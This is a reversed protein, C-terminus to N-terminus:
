ISIPNIEHIYKVLMALPSDPPLTRCYNANGIVYLSNKARTVAVNILYPVTNNIWKTKHTPSNTSVVLSFIMIDRENGQFSHVTDAKIREQLHVPILNRIEKAQDSFPTTIGIKIFAHQEALSCALEVTKNIEVQNINKTSHHKGATHVWFVGKPEINYNDASTLIDLEQGMKPGYFVKNSYGIIEPHCRFHEKLLVSHSKSTISLNYCYDYLSENVYNLRADQTIGISDTIYTEEYTQVKTIHKLQMPDGIVVLQKARLILPLASAIDCQSAEDIVVIDFLENKLPFAKNVSLSTTATINFTDLFKSMTNVFAPDFLPINDPIYDKYSNIQAADGNRIKMHILANLYPTGLQTLSKQTEIITNRLEAEISIIDEVEAQTSQLQEKAKQVSKEFAIKKEKLAIGVELFRVLNDHAAIIEEGNKLSYPNISINKEKALDKLEPNWSEFSLVLNKSYKKKSFLNFFFKNLGFYKSIIQNKSKNNASILSIIYDNLQNSFINISKEDKSNLWNEFEREKTEFNQQVNPIDCELKKRREIRSNSNSITNKKQFIEEEINSLSNSNDGLLNLFIRNVFSQIIPKTRDNIETRSGFRLFFTPERILTALREKVNDVAQNNKSALLIKKNHVVANALINLVVQTKGTGPPGTIVTLQQNFAYRVSDKQNNNLPTIQILDSDAIKHVNNDIKTKTLFKELLSGATILQYNNITKLEWILQASYNSAESFSLTISDILEVVGGLYTRIVEIKDNLSKKQNLASTLEEILDDPYNRDELPKSYLTFNKIPFEINSDLIDIFEIENQLISFTQGNFLINIGIFINRPNLKLKEQLFLAHFTPSNEINITITDFFNGFNIQLLNEKDIKPEKESELSVLAQYYYLLKQLYNANTFNIKSLVKKIQVLREAIGHIPPPSYMDPEVVDDYINEERIDLASLIKEIETNSLNLQVSNRDSITEICTNIDAIDFYMRINQPVENVNFTIPQHFLVLCSIHGLNFNDHNPELIVFKKNSLSDILSRRYAYVQQYPNRIGGGGKVFVFDNGSSIRWPNTESFTLAGSYNKFDIVIIKGSAILLADIQHGNCSLNGILTFLGEAERFIRRLQTSFLRFFMNEQTHEYQRTLYAKYSM